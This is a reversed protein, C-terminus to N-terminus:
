TASGVALRLSGTRDLLLLWGLEDVTRQDKPKHSTPGSAGLAKLLRV